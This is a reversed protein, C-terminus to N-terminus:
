IDRILKQKILKLLEKATADYGDHDLHIYMEILEKYSKSIVGQEVSDLKKVQTM